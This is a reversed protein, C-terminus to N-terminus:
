LLRELSDTMLSLFLGSAGTHQPLRYAPSDRYKGAEFKLIPSRWAVLVGAASRRGALLQKSLWNAQANTSHQRARTVPARATPYGATWRRDSPLARRKAPPLGGPEHTQSPRAAQHDRARRRTQPNVH